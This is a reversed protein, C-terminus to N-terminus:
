TFAVNVPLAFDEAFVANVALATIIYPPPPLLSSIAFVTSFGHVFSYRRSYPAGNVTRPMEITCRQCRKVTSLQVTQHVFAVTFCRPLVSGGVPPSLLYFM